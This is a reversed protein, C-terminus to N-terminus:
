AGLALIFVKIGVRFVLGLAVLALFAMLRKAGRLHWLHWVGKPTASACRYQPFM